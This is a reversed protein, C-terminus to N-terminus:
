LILLMIQVNTLNRKYSILTLRLYSFFFIIYIIDEGRSSNAPTLLHRILRHTLPLPPTLYTMVDGQTRSELTICLAGISLTKHLTALVIYSPSQQVLCITRGPINMCGQHQWTDPLTVRQVKECKRICHIDTKVQSYFYCSQFFFFVDLNTFM